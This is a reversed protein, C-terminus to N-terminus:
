AHIVKSLPQMHTSEERRTELRAFEAFCLLMGESSPFSGLVGGDGVFMMPHACCPWGALDSMSSPHHVAHFGRELRSIDSQIKAQAKRSDSGRQAFADIQARAPDRHEEKKKPM